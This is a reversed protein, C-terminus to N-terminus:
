EAPDLELPIYEAVVMVGTTKVNVPQIGVPRGDRYTIMTFQAERRLKSGIAVAYAAGGTTGNTYSYGAKGNEGVVRTPGKQVHLHGAIVLDTCGRELATAGLNADHVLLTAIREGDEDRQCVDDAIETKVEGFSLGKQDRWNGLGSSRPDDVGTIRVGGFVEKPEGDLHTWGLKELYRNVFNGHDHNGAVAVQAEYGDFADDLSDLSFAEWEQGTSTDDGANLVVTAGAEDATVRVVKDMGINDHRDSVLVAVTEDEEPVRLQDAVEDVSEAVDRYFSKSTEYTSFLSSVLRRTEKTLMGNRIQWKRLDPPVTLEPFAEAVGVWDDTQVQEPTNRWPQLLAVVGVALALSGVGIARVPRSALQARRTPGLLFWLGIPALGFIGARLAQIGALGVFEDRFRRAEAEPTAAITAYRVALKAATDASTKGLEVDVGIPGSTSSRVDPLYPGLDLRVEGRLNPKVVADHSAVVMETQSTSFLVLWTPVAVVFWVLAFALLRLLRKTLGKSGRGTASGESPSTSAM